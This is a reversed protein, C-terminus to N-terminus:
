DLGVKYTLVRIGKNGPCFSAVGSYMHICVKKQHRALGVPVFHLWGLYGFVYWYWIGFLKVCFLKWVPWYLLAWSAVISCRRSHETGVISGVLLGL